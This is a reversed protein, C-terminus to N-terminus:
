PAEQYTKKIMENFSIFSKHNLRGAFRFGAKRIANSSAPNTDYAYIIAYDKKVTSAIFRLLDYYYGKRRFNENTYYHFLITADSPVPSSRNIESVLFAKDSTTYWGWCGYHDNETVVCFHHGQSFREEIDADPVSFGFDLCIKYFDASNDIDCFNRNDSHVEPIDDTKVVFFDQKNFFRCRIRSIINIILRKIKM